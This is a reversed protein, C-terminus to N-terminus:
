PVIVRNTELFWEEGFLQRRLDDNDAKLAAIREEQRKIKQQLARVTEDDVNRVHYINPNKGVSEDFSNFHSEILNNTGVSSPPIGLDKLIRSRACGGFQNRPVKDVPTKKLFEKLKTANRIKKDKPSLSVAM